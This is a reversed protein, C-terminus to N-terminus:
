AILGVPNPLSSATSFATKCLKIVYRFFGKNDEDMGAHWFSNLVMAYGFFPGYRGRTHWRWDNSLRGVIDMRRRNCQGAGLIGIMLRSGVVAVRIGWDAVGYPCTGTGARGQGAGARVWGRAQGCRDGHRGM